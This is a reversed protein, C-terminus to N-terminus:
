LFIYKKGMSFDRGSLGLGSLSIKSETRLNSLSSYGIVCARDTASAYTAEHGGSAFM